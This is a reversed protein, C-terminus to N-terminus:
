IGLSLSSINVFAKSYVLDFVRRDRNWHARSGGGLLSRYFTSGRGSSAIGMGFSYTYLIREIDHGAQLSIRVPVFVICLILFFM